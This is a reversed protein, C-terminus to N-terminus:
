PLPEIKATITLDAKDTFGTLIKEKPTMSFISALQATPAISNKVGSVEKEMNSRETNLTSGSVISLTSYARYKVKLESIGMHISEGENMVRNAEKLAHAFSVLVSSLDINKIEKMVDIKLLLFGWCCM